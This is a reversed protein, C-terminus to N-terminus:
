EAAQEQTIEAHAPYLDYWKLYATPLSLDQRATVLKEYYRYGEPAANGFRDLQPIHEVIQAEAM